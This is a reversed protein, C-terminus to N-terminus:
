FCYLKDFGLIGHAMCFKGNPTQGEHGRCTLTQSAQKSRGLVDKWLKAGCYSFCIQGNCSNKPLKLDNTCPLSNLDRTFLDCLLLPALGHFFKVGITQSFWVFKPFRSVHYHHIKEFKPALKPIM